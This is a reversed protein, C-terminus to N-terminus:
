SNTVGVGSLEHTPETLRKFQYASIKASNNGHQNVSVRSTIREVSTTGDDGKRVETM